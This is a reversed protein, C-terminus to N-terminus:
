FWKIIEGRCKYERKTTSTPIFMTQGNGAAVPMMGHEVKTNGTLQCNNEEIYKNQSIGAYLSFGVIVLFAFLVIYITADGKQYKVCRM